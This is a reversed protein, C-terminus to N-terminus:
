GTNVGYHEQLKTESFQLLDGVTDVGLDTQLSTGLKGGLQKRFFLTILAVHNGIVITHDQSLHFHLACLKLVTKFM